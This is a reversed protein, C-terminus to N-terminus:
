DQTEQAEVVEIHGYEILQAEQTPTLTATFTDGRRTDFVAQEGVVKYTKQVPESEEIHDLASNTAPDPVAPPQQQPPPQAVTVDQELAPNEAPNNEPNRM